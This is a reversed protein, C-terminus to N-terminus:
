QLGTTWEWSLLTKALLGGAQPPHWAMRSSGRRLKTLRRWHPWHAQKCSSIVSYLCVHMVTLCGPKIREGLPVLELSPM